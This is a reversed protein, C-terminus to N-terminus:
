RCDDAIQRVVNSELPTDCLLVGIAVLGGAWCKPAPTMRIQAHEFSSVASDFDAGRSDTALSRHKRSARKSSQARMALRVVGGLKNEQIGFAAVHTPLAKTLSRSLM